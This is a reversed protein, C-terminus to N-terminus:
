GGIVAVYELADFDRELAPEWVGSRRALSRVRIREGLAPAEGEVAVWREIAHPVLEPTATDSVISLRLYVYSEAEIREVVDGVFVPREDLEIRLPLIPRADDPQEPVPGCSGGALALLLSITPTLAHPARM